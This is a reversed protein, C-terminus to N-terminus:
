QIVQSAFMLQAVFYSPLAWLKHEFRDTKFRQIAVGIDSGVFLGAGVVAIGMRPEIYWAGVACTMMVSIVLLYAIVPGRLPPSIDPHLWRYLLWAMPSLVIGSLGTIGWHVGINLFASIYATHALLFASIGFLFLRNSAKSILCIDGVVSLGLGITIWMTFDNSLPNQTAAAGFFGFAAVVKLGARIRNFGYKEAVLLGGTALVTLLAWLVFVTPYPRDFM